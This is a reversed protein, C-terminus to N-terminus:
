DLFLMRAMDGGPMRLDAVAEVFGAAQAQEATLIVEERAFRSVQDSTLRTRDQYIAGLVQAVANVESSRDRLQQETMLGAMSTSSPHFLFRATRDATRTQGALFLVTAASQVFGQAHTNVTAPLARIFSYTVLMPDIQGGQSDIVLNIQTVGAEVLTALQRRLARMSNVDIAQEFFVYYIKTRDIAAAPPRPPVSAPAVAPPAPPPAIQPAVPPTAQPIPRSEQAWARWPVAAGALVSVAARRGLSTTM